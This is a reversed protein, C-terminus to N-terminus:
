SCLRSWRLYVRMSARLTVILVSLSSFNREAQCITAEVGHSLRCLLALHPLDPPAVLEGTGQAITPESKRLWFGPLSFGCVDAEVNQGRYNILEQQLAVNHTVPQVGGRQGMHVVISGHGAAAFRALRRQEMVSFVRPLTAAPTALGPAPMTARAPAPAPAPVAPTGSSHQTVNGVFRHGLEEIDSIVM